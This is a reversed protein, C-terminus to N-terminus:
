VTITVPTFSKTSSPSMAYLMMVEAALLASAILGVRPNFLRRGLLFVTPVTALAFLVSLTRVFFPTSGLHLWFRLVLYDLSMNGERRWLLRAFNYWDLRSIQVSAAEDLWFTKADLAHFSLVALLATALAVLILHTRSSTQLAYRSGAVVQHESDGESLSSIRM